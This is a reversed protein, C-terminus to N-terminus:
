SIEVEPELEPVEGPEELEARLLQDDQAEHLQDEEHSFEHDSDGSAHMPIDVPLFEIPTGYRTRGLPDWRSVRPKTLQDIHKGQLLEFM